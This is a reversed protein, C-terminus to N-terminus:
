GEGTSTASAIAIEEGDFKITHESWTSAVITVNSNVVTTFSVNTAGEMKLGKGFSEGNYNCTFKNNFNHKDANWSFFGSFSEGNRTEANAGNFTIKYTDFAYAGVAVLAMVFLTFIKKM